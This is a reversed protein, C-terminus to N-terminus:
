NPLIQCYHPQFQLNRLGSCFPVSRAPWWVHRLCIVLSSLFRVSTLWQQLHQWLISDLRGAMLCCVYSLICQTGVSTVGFNLYM